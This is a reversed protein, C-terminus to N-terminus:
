SSPGTPQSTPEAVEARHLTWAYRDGEITAIVEGPRLGLYDHMRSSLEDKMPTLMYVRQPSAHLHDLQDPDTRRWRNLLKWNAVRRGSYYSLVSSSDALVVADAPVQDRVQEAVSILTAYKGGSYTEMFPVRRQEVIFNATRVLNPMLWLGLMGALVLGARDASAKQTLYVTARWWGYVLLPMIPVFYRVDPMHIVMAVIMAAIFVGWLLRRRVLAVGLGIVTLGALTSLGPGLDLGFAAEAADGELIQYAFGAFRTAAESVTHRKLLPLMLDRSYAAPGGRPDFMVWLGAMGLAGAVISAFVIRKRRSTQRVLHYVCAVLLSGIFIIMTRRTVVMVGLGAVMAMVDPWQRWSFFARSGAVVSRGARVILGEYGMLFLMVGFLFPLDALLEFAHRYVQMTVALMVTVILAVPRSDHLRITRYVLGLTALALVLMFLDAVWFAGAGGVAFAGALLWPVGPYRHMSEDHDDFGGGTLISQAINVYGASDDGVRWQGNFGALYLLVVGM